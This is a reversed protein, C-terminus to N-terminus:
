PLIISKEDQYSVSDRKRRCPLLPRSVVWVKSGFLLSNQLLTSSSRVLPNETCCPPLWCFFPSYQTRPNKLRFLKPNKTKRKETQKSKIKKIKLLKKKLSRQTQQNQSHRVIRIRSPCSQSTDAQGFSDAAGTQLTRRQGGSLGTRVSLASM